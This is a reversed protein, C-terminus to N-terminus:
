GKLQLKIGTINVNLAHKSLMPTLKEILYNASNNHQWKNFHSQEQAQFFDHNKEIDEKKYLKNNFTFQKSLYDNISKKTKLTPNYGCMLCFTGKELDLDIIANTFELKMNDQEYILFELPMNTTRSNGSIIKNKLIKLDSRTPKGDYEICYKDCMYSDICFTKLQPIALEFINFTKSNQIKIIENDIDKKIIELKKREKLLNKLSVIAKIVENNNFSYIVDNIESLISTFEDFIRKSEEKELTNGTYQFLTYPVVRMEKSAFSFKFYIDKYYDSPFFHDFCIHFHKGSDNHTVVPKSGNVVFM